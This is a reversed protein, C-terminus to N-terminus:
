TCITIPIANDRGSRQRITEVGEQQAGPPLNVQSVSKRQASTEDFQACDLICSTRLPHAQNPRSMCSDNVGGSTKGLTNRLGETM